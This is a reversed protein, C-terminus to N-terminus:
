PLGLYRQSALISIIAYFDWLGVFLRKGVNLIEFYNKFCCKCSVQLNILHKQSWIITNVLVQLYPGSCIGDDGISVKPRQVLSKVCKLGNRDVTTVKNVNLLLKLAKIIKKLRKFFFFTFFPKM